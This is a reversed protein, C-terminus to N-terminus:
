AVKLLIEMLCTSTSRLILSIEDEARTEEMHIIIELRFPFM